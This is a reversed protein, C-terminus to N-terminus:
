KFRYDVGVSVTRPNGPSYSNQTNPSYAGVGSYSSTATEAYRKDALNSGKLWVRWASAFEQALRLNFLNFGGYEVTNANDMEYTSLYQWELEASFGALASPTWRVQTNGIWAPAGPIDNGSYDLTPSAQYDRYEHESYAVALQTQWEPTIQWAAGLEIGQHRTKGANRPETQGAAIAYNVVEDEGDLRYLAIDLQVRNDLYM